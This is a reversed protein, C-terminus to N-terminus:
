EYCEAISVLCEYCTEGCEECSACERHSVLYGQELLNLDTELIVM